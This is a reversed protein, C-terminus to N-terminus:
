EKKEPSKKEKAKKEKVRPETMKKSNEDNYAYALVQARRAGFYNKIRRIVVLNEEKKVSSAIQPILEKYSPTTKDFAVEAVIKVRALLPEEQRNEIKMEM